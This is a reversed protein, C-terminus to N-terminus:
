DHNWPLLSLVRGMPSANFLGSFIMAAGMLGALWYGAPTGQAGLWAGTIVFAGTLIQVQRPLDITSGEAQNVKIGERACAGPDAEVVILEAKTSSAIKEAAMRARRGTRCILFLRNFKKVGAAELQQNLRSWSLQNLPCLTSGDVHQRAFEGPSRVDIIPDDKRYTSAFTRADVTRIKRSM